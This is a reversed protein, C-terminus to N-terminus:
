GFYTSVEWERFRLQFLYIPQSLRFLSRLILSGLDNTMQYLCFLMYLGVFYEAWERSGAVGGDELLSDNSFFSLICYWRLSENLSCDFKCTNIFYYNIDSYNIIIIERKGVKLFLYNFFIALQWWASLSVGPHLM